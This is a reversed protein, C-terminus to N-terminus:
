PHKLYKDPERRVAAECGACCLLVRRGGIELVVPVGMAGLRLGTVPCVRQETALGRLEPSLQALAAAIREATAGGEASTSEGRAQGAGFYAVGISPNLQTQADILFAG